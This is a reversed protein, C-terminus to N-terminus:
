ATGSRRSEKKLTMMQMTKIMARIEVATDHDTNKIHEIIELKVPDTNNDLQDPNLGTMLYEVSVNFIKSIKYVVDARPHYKVPKKWINYVSSEPINIAKALQPVRWGQKRM